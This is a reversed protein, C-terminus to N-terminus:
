RAELPEARAPPGLPAPIESLRTGRAVVPIVLPSSADAMGVEYHVWPSAATNPTIIAVVVRCGRLRDVIRELWDDGGKISDLDSSVFVEVRRRVSSRIAEKLRKALTADQTAHGIFVTRPARVDPEEQGTRFRPDDADSRV